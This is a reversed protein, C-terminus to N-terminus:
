VTFLLNGAEDLVKYLVRVLVRSAVRILGESPHKYIYIYSYPYVIM